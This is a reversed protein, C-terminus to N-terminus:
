VIEDEDQSMFESVRQSQPMDVVGLRHHMLEEAILVQLGQRQGARIHTRQVGGTATLLRVGQRLLAAQRVREIVMGGEVGGPAGREM